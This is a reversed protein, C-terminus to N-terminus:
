YEYDGFAEIVVLKDSKAIDRPTVLWSGDADLDLGFQKYAYWVLHRVSRKKLRQLHLLKILYVLFFGTCLVMKM